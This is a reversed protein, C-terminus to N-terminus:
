EKYEFTFQESGVTVVIRFLSKKRKVQEFTYAYLQAKKPDVVLPQKEFAISALYNAFNREMGQESYYRWEGIAQGLAHWGAASNDVTTTATGSAYTTNGYSNATGSYTTTARTPPPPPTRIFPDAVSAWVDAASALTNARMVTYGPKEFNVFDRNVSLPEIPSLNVVGVEVYYRKTGRYVMCSVAARETSLSPFNNDDLKFFTYKKPDAVRVVPRGFRSEARVPVLAIVGLAFLFATSRKM